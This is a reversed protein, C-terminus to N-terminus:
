RNKTHESHQVAMEILRIVHEDALSYYVRKGERRFRVLDANRLLRLQHSTASQTSGILKSLECVCLEKKALACLIKVRTMDGLLRFNNALRSIIDTSPLESKLAHLM